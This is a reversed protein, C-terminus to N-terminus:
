NGVQQPAFLELFAECYLEPDDRHVEHGSGKCYIHRVTETGIVDLIRSATDKEIIPSLDTDAQLILTPCRVQELASEHDFNENFASSGADAPVAAAVRYDKRARAEVLPPPLVQAWSPTSARHASPRDNLWAAMQLDSSNDTLPQLRIEIDELFSQKEQATLDPPLPFPLEGLREVFELFEMGRTDRALLLRHLPKFRKAAVWHHEWDEGETFFFPGDELVLGGVREPFESAIRVAVLSGLSNGAIIAPERVVSSIVAEVDKAYDIVRFSSHGGFQSMGHGRWEMMILRYHASLKAVVPAFSHWPENMGPLLLIPPGNGETMAFNVEGSSGTISQVEIESVLADDEFWLPSSRSVRDDHM